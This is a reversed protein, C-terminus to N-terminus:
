REDRYLRQYLRSRLSPQVQLRHRRRGISVYTKTVRTLPSLIVNPHATSSLCDVCWMTVCDVFWRKVQTRSTRQNRRDFFSTLTALWKVCQLSFSYLITLTDCLLAPLSQVIDTCVAHSSRSSTRTTQTSLHNTM